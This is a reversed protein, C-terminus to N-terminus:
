GSSGHWINLTAQKKERLWHVLTDPHYTYAGSSERGGSLTMEPNGEGLEASNLQSSRDTSDTLVYLTGDTPVCMPWSGPNVTPDAALATILGVPHSIPDMLPRAPQCPKHMHQGAPLTQTHALKAPPTQLTPWSAPDKPQNNLDMCWKSSLGQGKEKDKAVRSSGPM